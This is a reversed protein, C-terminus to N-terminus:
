KIRWIAASCNFCVSFFPSVIICHIFPLTNEM